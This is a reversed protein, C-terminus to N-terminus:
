KPQQQMKAFRENFRKIRDNEKTIVKEDKKVFDGQRPTTEKTSPYMTIIDKTKPVSVIRIKNVPEGEKGYGINPYDIEYVDLVSDNVQNEETMQEKITEFLEEIDVDPSFREQKALICSIAEEKSYSVIQAEKYGLKNRKQIIEDPLTSSLKGIILPVLKLDDSELVDSNTKKINELFNQAEYLRGQKIYIALLKGAISAPIHENSTLSLKFYREAQDFNGAALCLSALHYYALSKVDKKCSETAIEFQRKAEDYEKKSTRALGLLINVRGNITQNTKELEEGLAIAENPNELDLAMRAEELTTQAYLTDRYKTDKAKDFYYKAVVYDGISKASLAKAFAVERVQIDSKPDLEQLISSAKAFDGKAELLKAREMKVGVTQNPINDLIKEAEKLNGEYRELRALLIAAYTEEYPSETIVRRYYRKADHYREEARAVDGLGVVGSYKNKSDSAAVISFSKKAEEFDKEQYYIKGRILQGFTDNPYRRVYEEIALKARPSRTKMLQKISELQKNREILTPQHTKSNKKSSNKM